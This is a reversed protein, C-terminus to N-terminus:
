AVRKRRRWGYGILTMAGTSLLIVSSPEPLATEYGFAAELMRLDVASITDRVGPKGSFAMLDQNDAVHSLSNADYKGDSNKALNVLTGDSLKFTGNTKDIRDNWKQYGDGGDLYNFGVAHGLEHLMTSYADRQDKGIGTITKSYFMDKDTAVDIEKVEKPLGNADASAGETAGNGDMGTEGDDKDDARLTFHVKDITLKVDKGPPSGINSLWTDIASQFLDKALKQQNADFGSDTFDYSSVTIQFDARCAGGALALAVVVALLHFTLRIRRCNQSQM